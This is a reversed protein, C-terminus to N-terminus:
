AIPASLNILTCYSTQFHPPIHEGNKEQMYIVTATAFSAGTSRQTPPRPTLGGLSWHASQSYRRHFVGNKLSQKLIKCNSEFM